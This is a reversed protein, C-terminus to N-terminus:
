SGLPNNLGSQARQASDPLTRSVFPQGKTEPAHLDLFAKMRAVTEVREAATPEIVAVREAAEEMADIRESLNQVVVGALTDVRDTLNQVVLVLTDVRAILNTLEADMEEITRM